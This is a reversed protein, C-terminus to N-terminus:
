RNTKIIRGMTRDLTEANCNIYDEASLSLKQCIEQHLNTNTYNAGALFGWVFFISGILTILILITCGLNDEM